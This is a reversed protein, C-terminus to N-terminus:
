LFSGPVKQFLGFVEHGIGIEASLHLRYKQKWACYLYTLWPLSPRIWWRKMVEADHVEVSKPDFSAHQQITGAASLRKSAPAEQDASIRRARGWRTGNFDYIYYLLEKFGYSKLKEGLALPAFFNVHNLLMESPVAKLRWLCYAQWIDEFGNPTIFHFYGGPKLAAAFTKLVQDPRAVHEIIDRAIILDFTNRLHLDEPTGLLTEFGHRQKIKELVEPVIDLGTFKADPYVFQIGRSFYGDGPGVELVNHFKLGRRKMTYAFYVGNRFQRIMNKKLNRKGERAQEQLYYAHCGKSAVDNSLM